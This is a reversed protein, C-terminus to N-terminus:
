FGRKAKMDRVQGLPDHSTYKDWDYVEVRLTCDELINAKKEGNQKCSAEVRIDFFADDWVPNLTGNVVNTKGVLKGNWFVKKCSKHIRKSLSLFTETATYWIGQLLSGGHGHSCRLCRLWSVRHGEASHDQEM